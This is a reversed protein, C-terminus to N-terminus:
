AAPPLSSYYEAMSNKTIVNECREGDAVGARALKWPREMHTLDSLWQASKDGYFELVRDIAGKQAASLKNASGKPLKAVSFQGKHARYLSPVVPGNAWAEIEEDFLPRDLWVLSWAQAYYVLKQLKLTSTEGRSDLIYAAIDHVTIPAM